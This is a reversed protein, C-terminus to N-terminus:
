AVLEEQGSEGDDVSGLREVAARRLGGEGAAYIDSVVRATPSSTALRDLVGVDQLVEAAGNRAFRDGWELVPVLFSAVGEGAARLTQKTAERVWWEEDALLPLLRPVIALGGLRGAARCAHARVFMVEDDLCGLVAALAERDGHAGLTELAARRVAPDPDGVLRRLRDVALTPYRALLMAGWYRVIPREDSLLARLRWGPAPALRDLQAAIRSRPALDEELAEILLDLAWGHTPALLGLARVAADGIDVDGSRLARRYLHHRATPHGARALEVLASIRRWRGTETRHLRARRRLARARRPTIAPGDRPRRRLDHGVRGVVVLLSLALWALAAVACALVLPGSSVM